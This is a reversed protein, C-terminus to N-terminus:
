LVRKQPPDKSFSWLTIPITPISSNRLLLGVPVFSLPMDNSVAEVEVSRLM